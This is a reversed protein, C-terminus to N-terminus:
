ACFDDISAHQHHESKIRRLFEEVSGADIWWQGHQDQNGNIKNAEVLAIVWTPTMELLVTAEGLSILPKTISNTKM